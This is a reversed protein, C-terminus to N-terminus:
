NIESSPFNCASSPMMLMHKSFLCLLSVFSDDVTESVNLNVTRGLLSSVGTCM